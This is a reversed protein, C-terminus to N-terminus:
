TCLRVAANGGANKMSFMISGYTGSGAKRMRKNCSILCVPQDRNGDVCFAAGRRAILMM